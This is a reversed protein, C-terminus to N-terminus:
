INWRPPRRVTRCAGFTKRDSLDYKARLFERIDEFVVRGQQFSSACCVVERRNGHLPGSPDVVSAAIAAVLASKGNGRAVSLASDGDTGFAGKIFRREWPLVCFPESDHDGGKLVLTQLYALLDFIANKM